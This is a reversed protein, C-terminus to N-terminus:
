SPTNVTLQNNGLAGADISRTVKSWIRGQLGPGSEDGEATWLDGTIVNIYPYVLLENPPLGVPDTSYFQDPRGIYVATNTAHRSAVTGDVGRRVIVETGIGTLREIALLERDLFLRVGPTVGSTSALYVKSDSPEVTRSLTTTSLSVTANAM